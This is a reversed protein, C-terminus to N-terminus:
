YVRIALGKECVHSNQWRIKKDHHLITSLFFIGPERLPTWSSRLCFVRLAEAKNTFTSRLHRSHRSSPYNAHTRSDIANHNHSYVWKWLWWKVIICCSFWRRLHKWRPIFYLVFNSHNFGLIRIWLDLFSVRARSDSRRFGHKRTRRTSRQRSNPTTFWTGSRARTGM